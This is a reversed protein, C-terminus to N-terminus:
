RTKEHEGLARYTTPRTVGFEAGIRAVTHARKGEGSQLRVLRVHALRRYRADQVNDGVLATGPRATGAVPSSGRVLAERAHGVIGGALDALGLWAQDAGRNARDRRHGAAGNGDYGV